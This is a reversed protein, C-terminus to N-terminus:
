GSPWMQALFYAEQSMKINKNDYAFDANLNLIFLGTVLSVYTSVCMCLHLATQICIHKIIWSITNLLIREYFM